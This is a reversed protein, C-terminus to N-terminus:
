EPQDVMPKCYSKPTGTAAASVLESQICTFVLERLARLWDRETEPSSVSLVAQGHWGRKAQRADGVVLKGYHGTANRRAYWVQIAQYLDSAPAVFSAEDLRGRDFLDAVYRYVRAAATSTTNAQHNPWPSGDRLQVIMGYSLRAGSLLELISWFRLFQADVSLDSLADAFLDSCLKLLPDVEIGRFQTLLDAQSEGAILGGALNGRYPSKEPVWRSVVRNDPQRQDIVLCASKGTARRNLALLSLVRNREARALEGAQEYSTAWVPQFLMLTLPRRSEAYPRWHEERLRCAWGLEILVANILQREEEDRLRRTLPRIEVGPLKLRTTMLLGEVICMVRHELAGNSTPDGIPKTYIGEQRELLRRHAEAVDDLSAVPETPNVVTTWVNRFVHTRRLGEGIDEHIRDVYVSTEHGLALGPEHVYAGNGEDDLNVSVVLVPAIDVESVASVQVQVSKGALENAGTVEITIPEGDRCWEPTIRSEVDHPLM